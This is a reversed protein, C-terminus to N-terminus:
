ISRPINTHRIYSTRVYKYNVYLFAVSSFIGLIVAFWVTFTLGTLNSIYASSVLAGCASGLGMISNFRGLVKGLEEKRVSNILLSTCAPQSLASAIGCVASVILFSLIDKINFILIISIYYIVGGMLILIEKKFKDAMYGSIPLCLAMVATSSGIVLGIFSENIGLSKMYLPLLIVVSTIGWGKFFIFIYLGTLRQSTPKSVSCNKNPFYKISSLEKRILLIMIIAVLSSIVNLIFISDFGSFEKLFGGVIPSVVLAIYFSLDFIGFIKGSKGNHHMIGIVYHMVPRFLVCAAGQFIRILLIYLPVKVIFLSMSILIYLFLGASIVKLAGFKDLLKGAFPSLGIKSLSYLTFALGIVFGRTNLESLYISFLSDNIGFSFTIMFNISFLTAIVKQKTILSM